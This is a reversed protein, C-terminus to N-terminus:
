PRLVQLHVRLLYKVLVVGNPGKTQFRPDQVLRKSSAPLISMVIRSSIPNPHPTTPSQPSQPYPSEISTQRTGLHVTSLYPFSIFFTSSSAHTRWTGVFEIQGMVATSLTEFSSLPSPSRRFSSCERGIQQARAQSTMEILRTLADNTGVQSGALTSLTGSMATLNAKIDLTATSAEASTQKVLAVAHQTQQVL